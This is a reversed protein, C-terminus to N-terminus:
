QSVKKRKKLTLCIGSTFGASLEGVLSVKGSGDVSISFTLKDIDYGGCSEPLAEVIKSLTNVLGSLSEGLKESAVRTTKITMNTPSPFMSLTHAKATEKKEPWITQITIKNGNSM